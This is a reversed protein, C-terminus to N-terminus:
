HEAVKRFPVWTVNVGTGLEPNSKAPQLPAHVLVLPFQITAMFLLLVAVAVKVGMAPNVREIVFPPFPVIVLEGPVM